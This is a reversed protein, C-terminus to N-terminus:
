EKLIQNRPAPHPIGPTPENLQQESDSGWRLLERYALQQQEDGPQWPYKTQYEAEKPYNALILILYGILLLNTLFSTYAGLSGARMEWPALQQEKANRRKIRML